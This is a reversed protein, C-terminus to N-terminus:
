ERDLRFATLDISPTQGLILKRLCVATGTSLHIGSRMHGAGVWANQFGPILGIFPYGDGTGPRLGAWSQKVPIDRLCPILDHAFRVLGDIAEPTTREDFGVEEMTSGILLHGDDRPVIYRPGENIIHNILQDPQYLLVMQGRWPHMELGIGLSKLLRGTWPGGTICFRDAELTASSTRLASIRERRTDFGHIPTNELLEVGRQRCAMSLAALHRPNRVQAEDPLFYSVWGDSSTSDPSLSPEFQQLCPRDLLEIRVGDESWQRMTAKLSAAEGVGRAIYIGGCRRYGTDIGTEAKLKAAWDPHLGHSLKRLDELADITHEFAPPLIGAGAWSTQRGVEARDVVCVRQGHQVLEYALSLGIAGGGVILIKDM